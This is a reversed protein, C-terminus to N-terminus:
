RGGLFARVRWIHCTSFYQIARGEARGETTCLTSLTDLYLFLNVAGALDLFALRVLLAGPENEEMTVDENGKHGGEDIVYGVLRDHGTANADDDIMDGGEAGRAM